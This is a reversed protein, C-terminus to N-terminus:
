SEYSQTKGSKFNFNGVKYDWLIAFAVAGYELLLVWPNEYNGPNSYAQYSFIAAFTWVTLSNMKTLLSLGFAPIIYWPHVVPQLILYILYSMTWVEAMQVTSFPKKKWAVYVIGLFTMASLLKTLSAITNYGKIWYGVERFLYYISANFEFKGQFLRLSESINQWSSQYLLPIFVLFFLIGAGIWFSISRRIIEKVILSPFLMIPLIKLGVALSWFGGFAGIKEKSLFWLASLLAMLVLGEFHLNGTIEMVVLPNFWYLIVLKLNEQYKKLLSLLLWFVAIEGFFLLIRLTVIGQKLNQNAGLSGLWFLLQNTPPYVTYYEPSNMSNLLDDLYQTKFESHSEIWDKPLEAYPNQELRIMEGDWLFRAYDDSWTPFSFLIIMRLALGGLFWWWVKGKDISVSRYFVLM